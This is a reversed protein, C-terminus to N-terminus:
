WEFSQVVTIGQEEARQVYMPRAFHTVLIPLVEKDPYQNRIVEVKRRIQEVVREFEEEGGSRRDLQLKAEGVVVVERGNGLRSGFALVNIEEDAIETRIMRSSLKIGLTRELLAPLNRYAENELAYSASRSLGGLEARLGRMAQVMEEQAVTLRDMRQALERVSEETKRQAEALAAM